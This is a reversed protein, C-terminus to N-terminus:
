AGVPDVPKGQPSSQTEPKDGDDPLRCSREAVIAAVVLLLAGLLGSAEQGVSDSIENTTLQVVLVGLHWGFFWAGALASAKAIMLVRVAYFPEPRRPRSKGVGMLHDALARKYRLIPLALALNVLGIGPMTILLNIGSVPVAYGNGIMLRVAIFSLVAAAVANWALNSLKTPKM